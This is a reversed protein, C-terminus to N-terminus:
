KTILQVREQITLIIEENQLGDRPGVEHIRIFSPLLNLEILSNTNLNYYSSVLYEEYILKRKEEM